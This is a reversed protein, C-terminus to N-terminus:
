YKTYDSEFALLLKAAHLGRVLVFLAFLLASGCAQIPVDDLFWCPIILLM